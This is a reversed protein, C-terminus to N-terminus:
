FECNNVITLLNEIAEEFLSFCREDDKILGSFVEFNEEVSKFYQNKSKYDRVNSITNLIDKAKADGNDLYYADSIM